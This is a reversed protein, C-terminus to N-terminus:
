QKYGFDNRVRSFNALQIGMTKQSSQGQGGNSQGKDGAPSAGCISQKREAGGVVQM